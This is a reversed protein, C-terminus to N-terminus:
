DDRLADFLSPDTDFTFVKSVTSARINNVLAGHEKYFDHLWRTEAERSPFMMVTKWHYEGDSLCYLVTNKHGRLYEMTERWEEAFHSPDFKFELFTFVFYRDNPMIAERFVGAEKMSRVSKNVTVHSVDIDHEESLVESLERSSRQPNEALEQLIAVDRETFEWSPESDGMTSLGVGTLYDNQTPESDREGTM